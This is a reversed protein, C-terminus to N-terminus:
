KGPEVLAGYVVGRSLYQLNETNPGGGM